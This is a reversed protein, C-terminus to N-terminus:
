FSCLVRLPRVYPARQCYDAGELDAALALGLARPSHGGDNHRVDTHLYRLRKDRYGTAADSEPSLNIAGWTSLLAEVRGDGPLLAM